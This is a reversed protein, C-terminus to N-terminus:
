LNDSVPIQGKIVAEGIIQKAVNWDRDKGCLAEQTIRVGDDGVLVKADHVYDTRSEWRTKLGEALSVKDKEQIDDNDFFLESQTTNLIMVKMEMM